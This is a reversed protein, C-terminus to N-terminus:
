TEERTRSNQHSSEGYTLRTQVGHLKERHVKETMIPLIQNYHKECIEQLKDEPLYESDGEAAQKSGKGTTNRVASNAPTQAQDASRSM